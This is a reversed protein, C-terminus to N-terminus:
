EVGEWQVGAVMGLISGEYKEILKVARKLRGIEPYKKSEKRLAEHKSYLENVKGETKDYFEQFCM